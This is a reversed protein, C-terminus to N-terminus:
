KYNNSRKDDVRKDFVITIFLTYLMIFRRTDSRNTTWITDIIIVFLM